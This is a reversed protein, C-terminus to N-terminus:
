DGEDLTNMGQSCLHVHTIARSHRQVLRDWQAEREARLVNAEQPIIALDLM